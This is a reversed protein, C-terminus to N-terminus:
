TCQSVKNANMDTKINQIVSIQFLVLSNYKKLCITELISKKLDM